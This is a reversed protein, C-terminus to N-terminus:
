VVSCQVKMVGQLRRLPRDLPRGVNAMAEDNEHCTNADAGEAGYGSLKLM